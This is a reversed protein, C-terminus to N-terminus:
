QHLHINVHQVVTGEAIEEDSEEDSLQQLTRVYVAGQGTIRMLADCTLM